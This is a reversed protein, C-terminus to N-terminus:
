RRGAKFMEQLQFRFYSSGVAKGKEFTKEDSLDIEQPLDPLGKTEYGDVIPDRGGHVYYRSSSYKWDTSEKALGMKVPNNEIYQGCAYLYAENEILLSRFRERWIPGSIKYKSHFKYVYRSKLKQLGRIFGEVASIRVVLHFHTTMLCYHFVRLGCEQKIRILLACFTDFDEQDRFIELKRISRSIVHVYCGERLVEMRAMRAVM